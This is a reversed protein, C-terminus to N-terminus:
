PCQVGWHARIFHGLLILLDVVKWIALPVTIFLWIIALKVFYTLADAIHEDQGM